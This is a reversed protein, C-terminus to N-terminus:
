KRGGSYPTSIVDLNKIGPIFSARMLHENVERQTYFWRADNMEFSFSRGTWYMKLQSKKNLANRAVIAKISAIPHSM